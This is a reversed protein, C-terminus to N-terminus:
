TSRSCFCFFFFVHITIFGILSSQLFNTVTRTVGTHNSSQGSHCCFAESSPLQCSPTLWSLKQSEFILRGRRSDRLNKKRRWRQQTKKKKKNIVCHMKSMEEFKSLTKTNHTHQTSSCSNREPVFCLVCLHYSHFQTHHHFKKKKKRANEKKNKGQKSRFAGKLIYRMRNYQNLDRKIKEQIRKFCCRSTGGGTVHKM